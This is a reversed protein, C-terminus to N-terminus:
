PNQPYREQYSPKDKEPNNPDNPTIYDLGVFQEGLDHAAGLRTHGEWLTPRPGDLDLQIHGKFGEDQIKNYLGSEVGVRKKDNMMSIGSQRTLEPGSLSPDSYFDQEWSGIDGRFLSQVIESAPAFLRLQDGPKGLAM